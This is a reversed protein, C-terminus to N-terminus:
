GRGGSAATRPAFLYHSVGWESGGAYGFLESCAMMFIRWRQYWVAAKQTGYHQGLIRLAEAREANLNALWADATRQYHTGDQFWHRQQLFANQVHCFLDHSPMVGGTFFHRGLWNGAGETEFLYPYRLHRFIHIFLLGDPKLWGRMREFLCAYNRVHELMEVTVIRDFGAKPSFTNIDATLVELNTLGRAQAAQSIYRRQSASNSVATISANPFQQAMFLSLSGWGCGLELIRHGDELEARACVQSLARQEADGLTDGQEWVCASYKRHPGLVLGFFEQPLEYHQANAADPQEAIAASGLKALFRRMGAECDRGFELELATLRARCARRIGARIVRDPVTGNEALRLALHQIM